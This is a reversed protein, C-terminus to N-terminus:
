SSSTRSAPIPCIFPRSRSCTSRAPRLRRKSRIRKRPLTGISFSARVASAKSASKSTTRSAPPSPWRARVIAPMFMHFSHGASFVRQGKDIANTSADQAPALGIAFALVLATIGLRAFCTDIRYMM